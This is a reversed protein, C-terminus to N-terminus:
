RNYKDDSIDAGAKAEQKSAAAEVWQSAPPTSNGGTTDPAAILRRVLAEPLFEPYEFPGPYSSRMDLPAVYEATADEAQAHVSLGQSTAIILGCAAFAALTRRRLGMDKPYSITM